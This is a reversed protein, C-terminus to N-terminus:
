TLTLIEPRHNRSIRYSSSSGVKLKGQGCMECFSFYPRSEAFSCVECVWGVKKKRAPIQARFAADGLQENNM